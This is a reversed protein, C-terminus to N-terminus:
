SFEKPWWEQSNTMFDVLDKKLAEYDLSRFAEAYNFDEGMPNSKSAHQRLTNLKLENPWWDRNSTGGGATQNTTGSLFPCKSSENIDFNKGHPTNSNSTNEM